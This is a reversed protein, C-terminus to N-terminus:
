RIRRIKHKDKPDRRGIGSAEYWHIEVWWVSGDPYQVAAFGKLKRWRGDGYRRNLQRRVDVGLGRAIIEIESIPGLIDDFTM